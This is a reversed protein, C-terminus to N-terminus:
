IVSLCVSLCVSMESCGPVVISRAFRFQSVDFDFGLGALALQCRQAKRQLRAVDVEVVQLSESQWVNDPLRKWQSLHIHVSTLKQRYPLLLAGREKVVMRVRDPVPLLSGPVWVRVRLSVSRRVSIIAPLNTCGICEAPCNRQEPLTM